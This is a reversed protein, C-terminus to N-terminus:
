AKGVMQYVWLGIFENFAQTVKVLAEVDPMLDFLTINWSDSLRNRVLYDCPSATVTMGQAQFLAMARPIHLASTVLVIPADGVLPRVEKANEYTTRSRAETVIAEEQVGLERAFRKMEQSETLPAQSPDGTGGSFILQSAIGTRYLDVGCLTRKLSVNSLENTPRLTGKPAIGGALVVIAQYHQGEQPAFRPTSEELLGILTRGVLPSTVLLALMFTSLALLRGIHRITPTPPRWMTVFMAALLGIIWSLPHVIGFKVLKYLTYLFPTLEM